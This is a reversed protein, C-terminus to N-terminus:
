VPGIRFGGGGGNWPSWLGACRTRACRVGGTGSARERGRSTQSYDPAQLHDSARQVCGRHTTFWVFDPKQQPVRNVYGVHASSWHPPFIHSM